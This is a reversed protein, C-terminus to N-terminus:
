APVYINGEMQFRHSPPKGMKSRLEAVSDLFSFIRIRDQPRLSTRENKIGRDALSWQGYDACYGKEFPVVFSEIGCILLPLSRFSFDWVWFGL